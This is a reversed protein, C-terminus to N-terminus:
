HLVPLEYEYMSYYMSYVYMCVSLCVYRSFKKIDARPFVEIFIVYNSKKLLRWTYEM